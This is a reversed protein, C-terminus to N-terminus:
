ICSGGEAQREGRTGGSNTGTRFLRLQPLPSLFRLLLLTFGSFDPLEPNGRTRTGLLGDAGHVAAGDGRVGAVAGIGERSRTAGWCRAGTGPDVQGVKIAVQRVWATRVAGIQAPAAALARRGATRGHDRGDGDHGEVGDHAHHPEKSVEQDHVHDDPLSPM